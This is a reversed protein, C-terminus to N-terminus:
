LTKLAYNDDRLTSHRIPYKPKGRDEQLKNFLHFLFKSNKNTLFDHKVEDFENIAPLYKTMHDTLDDDYAFDLPIEKKTEHQNNLFTYLSEGTNQNNVFIDGIPVHISIGDRELAEQCEETALFEVFELNGQVLNHGEIRRHLSDVNSSGGSFFELEESIEGRDLQESFKELKANGFVEAKPEFAEDADPFVERLNGDLNILKLEQEIKFDVTEARM